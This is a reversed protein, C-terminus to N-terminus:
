LSRHFALGNIRCYGNIRERGYNSSPLTGPTPELWMLSQWESHWFFDLLVPELIFFCSRKPPPLEFIKPIKMGAQPLNGMQSINRLHTSVVLWLTKWSRMRCKQQIPCELYVTLSISKALNGLGHNREDTLILIFCRGTSVQNINVPSSISRGERFSVDRDNSFGGVLKQFLLYVDVWEFPQFKGAITM